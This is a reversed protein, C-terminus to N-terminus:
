DGLLRIGLERDLVSFMELFRHRYTYQRSVRQRGQGAIKRRAEERPLYFRIKDIMEEEGSFTEIERGPELVEEMGEVYQCLYFAGCGTAMYLRQSMSNRIHPARDFALFIASLSAVKAYESGYVFRGGYARGLPSLLFSLNGLRRAPPPGWWKLDFGERLVRSLSKRRGIYEPQSSLNGVSAVSSAYFARDHASVEGPEFFSPAFGQSLWAVKAVGAKRYDEVLGQAMTFLFDVKRALRLVSDDLIPDPHWQVTPISRSRVADLWHEPIGTGKTFLLLDPPNGDLVSSFGAEPHPAAEPDFGEV